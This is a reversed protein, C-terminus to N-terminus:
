STCFRLIYIMPNEVVMGEVPSDVPIRFWWCYSHTGANQQGETWQLFMVSGPPDECACSQRWRLPSFGTANQSDWFRSEVICAHQMNHIKKNQLYFPIGLSRKWMTIIHLVDQVFVDQHLLCCDEDGKEGLWGPPWGASKHQVTDLQTVCNHRRVNIPLANFRGLSKCSNMYNMDQLDLIKAMLIMAHCVFVFKQTVHPKFNCLIFTCSIMCYSDRVSWGMVHHCPPRIFRTSFGSTKPEMQLEPLSLNCLREQIDAQNMQFSRSTQDIPDLVPIKQQPHAELFWLLSRVMVFRPVSRWRSM